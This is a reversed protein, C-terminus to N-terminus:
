ESDRNTLYMQLANKATWYKSSLPINDESENGMLEIMTNRLMIITADDGRRHRPIERRPQEPQELKRPEGKTEEILKETAEIVAAKVNEAAELERSIKAALDEKTNDPKPNIATADFLKPDPTLVKNAGMLIASPNFVDSKDEAM